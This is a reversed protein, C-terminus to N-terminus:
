KLAINEGRLNAVRAAARPTLRKTRSQHLIADQTVNVQFYTISYSTNLDNHETDHLLKLQVKNYICMYIALHVSLEPNHLVPVVMYRASGLGYIGYLQSHIHLASTFITTENHNYSSM